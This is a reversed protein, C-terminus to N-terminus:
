SDSFASLAKKLVDINLPSAQKITSQQNNRCNGANPDVVLDYQDPSKLIATYDLNCLNSLGYFYSFVHSGFLEMIKTGPNCYVLNALVAGHPTIICKASNFLQAQEYFTLGRVNLVEYGYSTVLNLIEQENEVPRKEDKPRNIFLKREKKLLANERLFLGRLYEPIFHHMRMGVFNKLEVHYLNECSICPAKSLLHVKIRPIGIIELMKEQFPWDLDRLVFHDVCKLDIGAEELVKLKPIVDVMWHYYNNAGAAGLFLTNGSLYDSAANCVQQTEINGYQYRVNEDEDLILANAGDFWARANNTSFLVVDNSVTTDTPASAREIQQFLRPPTLKYVTAPFIVRRSNEALNVKPATNMAYSVPSIEVVTELAFYVGSLPLYASRYGRSSNVCM